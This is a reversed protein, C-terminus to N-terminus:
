QLKLCFTRQLTLLRRM